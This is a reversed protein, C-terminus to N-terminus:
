DEAGKTEEVQIVVVIDVVVVVVFPSIADLVFV